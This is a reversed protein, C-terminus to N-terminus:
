KFFLAKEKKFQNMGVDRAAEMILSADGATAWPKKARAKKMVEWLSVAIGQRKLLELFVRARVYTARQRLLEIGEEGQVNIPLPQLPKRKRRGKLEKPPPKTKAKVSLRRSAEQLDVRGCLADLRQKSTYRRGGGM